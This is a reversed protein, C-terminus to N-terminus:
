NANNWDICAVMAARLTQFGGLELFGDEVEANVFYGGGYSSADQIYVSDNAKLEWMNDELQPESSEVFNFLKRIGDQMANTSTQTWM